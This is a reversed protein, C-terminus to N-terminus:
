KNKKKLCFVAYSIVLHSSNLRTSKRDEMVNWYGCSLKTMFSLVANGFLRVPPMDQVSEPRYFRNGKTYDAQHRLLPRVFLPLLSPDMQGDGDIKVVIDM